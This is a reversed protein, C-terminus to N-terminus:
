FIAVMKRTETVLLQPMTALRCYVGGIIIQNNLCTNRNNQGCRRLTTLSFIIFDYLQILGSQSNYAKNQLIYYTTNLQCSLTSWESLLSFCSPADNKWKETNEDRFDLYYFTAWKADTVDGGANLVIGKQCCALSLLISGAIHRVLVFSSQSM